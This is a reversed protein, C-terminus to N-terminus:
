SKWRFHGRLGMSEGHTFYASFMVETLALLAPLSLPDKPPSAERTSTPGKCPGKITAAWGKAGVRSKRSGTQRTLLRQCMSGCCTGEGLLVSIESVVPWFLGRLNHTNHITTMALWFYSSYVTVMCSSNVFLRNLFSLCM